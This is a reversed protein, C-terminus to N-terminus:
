MANCVGRSQRATEVNSGITLSFGGDVMATVHTEWGSCQLATVGDEGGEHRETCAMPLDADGTGIRRMVYCSSKSPDYGAAARVDPHLCTEAPDSVLAYIDNVPDRRSGFIWDGQGVSASQEECVVASPVDAGAGVSSASAIPQRADVTAALAVFLGAGSLAGIFKWM